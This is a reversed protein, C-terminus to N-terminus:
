ADMRAAHRVTSVDNNVASDGSHVPFQPPSKSLEYCFDRLGRCGKIVVEELSILIGMAEVAELIQDEQEDQRYGTGDWNLELKLRNVNSCAVGSQLSRPLKSVVCRDDAHVGKRTKSVSLSVFPFHLATSKATRRAHMLM